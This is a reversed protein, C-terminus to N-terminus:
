RSQETEDKIEQQKRQASSFRTEKRIEKQSSKAIVNLIRSDHKQNSPNTQQSTYSQAATLLASTFSTSLVSAQKEAKSSADEKLHAQTILNQQLTTQANNKSTRQSSVLCSFQGNLKGRNEKSNNNDKEEDEEIL